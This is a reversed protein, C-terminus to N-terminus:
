FLTSHWRGWLSSLKRVDVKPAMCSIGSSGTAVTQACTKQLCHRTLWISV